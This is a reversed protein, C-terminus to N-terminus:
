KWKSTFKVDTKCKRREQIREKLFRDLFGLKVVNDQCIKSCKCSKSSYTTNQRKAVASVDHRCQERNLTAMLIMM